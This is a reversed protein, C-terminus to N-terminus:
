LSLRPPIPIASVSLPLWPVRFLFCQPDDLSDIIFTGFFHCPIVSLNLRMESAGPFVFPIAISFFLPVFVLALLIYASLFKYSLVKCLPWVISGLYMSLLLTVDHTYVVILRVSMRSYTLSDAIICLRLYLRGLLITSLARFCICSFGHSFSSTCAYPFLM